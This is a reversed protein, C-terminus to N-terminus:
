TTDHRTTDHDRLPLWLQEVTDDAKCKEDGIVEESYDGDQAYSQQAYATAYQSYEGAQSTAYGQDWHHHAENSAYGGGSSVHEPGASLLNLDFGDEPGLMSFDLQSLLGEPEAHSSTAGVGHQASSHKGSRRSSSSSSHKSSSESKKSSKGEDKQSSKGDDKKSRSKKGKSGSRTYECTLSNAICRECGDKEGSCKLKKEHCRDCAQHSSSRASIPDFARRLNQVEDTEPDYKWTGFM